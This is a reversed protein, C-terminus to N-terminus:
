FAQSVVSPSEVVCLVVTIIAIPAVSAHRSCTSNSCSTCLCGLSRDRCDITTASYRSAMWHTAHADAHPWFVFWLAFRKYNQTTTADCWLCDSYCSLGNVIRIGDIKYKPLEAGVIEAVSVM